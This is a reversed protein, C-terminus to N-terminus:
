PFVLSALRGRFEYDLPNYASAYIGRQRGDLPLSVLSISTSEVIKGNALVEILLDASDVAHSSDNSVIYPVFYTGNEYTANGAEFLINVNAPGAERRQAEQVMAYAVLGGVVLVSIATIIAEPLSYDPAAPRSM